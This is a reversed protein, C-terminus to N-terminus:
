LEIGRKRLTVALARKAAHLRSKVTGIPVGLAEAIERYRMSELYFLVLVESQESPLESLCERLALTEESLEVQEAPGPGDSPIEAAELLAPERREQQRQRRLLRLMIGYVWTYTSSRREFRPWAEIAAVFTSQVLVEAQEADRALLRAARYLKPGLQHFLKELEGPAEKM